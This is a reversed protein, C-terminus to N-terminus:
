WRLGGSRWRGGADFGKVAGAGKDIRTVHRKYTRDGVAYEITSIGSCFL